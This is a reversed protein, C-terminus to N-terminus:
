RVAEVVQLSLIKRLLPNTLIQKAGMGVASGLATAASLVAPSTLSLAGLTGPIGGGMYGSGLLPAIVAGRAISPQGSKLVPLVRSVEEHLKSRGYQKQAERISPSLESIKNNLIQRREMLARTLEFDKEPASKIVRDLGKRARIAEELSIDSGSSIKSLVDKALKKAQGLRSFVEDDTLKSSVGAKAEAQGILEGARETSKPGGLFGPLRATPDSALQRFRSEKVGTMAGATKALGRGAKNLLPTAAKVGLTLAQGGLESATGTLVDGTTDIAQRYLPPQERLGLREDLINAAQKGAAYGLGAGAAGTAIAGPGTPIGAGGGAVAGLALGGYELAPRYLKSAISRGSSGTNSQGPSDAVFGDNSSVTDPVFGDNSM